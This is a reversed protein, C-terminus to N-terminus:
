RPFKRDLNEFKKKNIALFSLFKGVELIYVTDEMEYEDDDGYDFFEADKLSARTM